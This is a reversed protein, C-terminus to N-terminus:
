QAYGEADIEIQVDDGVLAGGTELAQNWTLGFDKRNITTNAAFGAKVNGWPDKVEGLFSVELVVPKEVGHITLKAQMKGAKKTSDLDTVGTSAFTIKPFNAVDFFDKSRLHKDREAVNTNISAVDISGTVKTAEPKTPDFEIEGDFKDFRGKVASFLHRVRFSVSTHDPDVKYHKAWGARPIALAFLGIGITLTAVTTRSM